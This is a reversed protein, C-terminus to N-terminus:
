APNVHPWLSQFTLMTRYWIRQMYATSTLKNMKTFSRVFINDRVRIGARPVRKSRKSQRTWNKLPSKSQRITEHKTRNMGSLFNFSHIKPKPTVPIPHPESLPQSLYFQLQSTIHQILFSDVKLLLFLFFFYNEWM